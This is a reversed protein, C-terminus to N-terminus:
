SVASGAIAMGADTARSAGLSWTRTSATTMAKIDSTAITTGGIAPAIESESVFRPMGLRIRIQIPAPTSTAHRTM